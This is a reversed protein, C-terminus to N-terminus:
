LVLPVLRSPQVQYRCVPCQAHLHLWRIGCQWCMIHGCPLASPVVAVSVCLCCNFQLHKNFSPAVDTTTNTVGDIIEDLPAAIGRLKVAITVVLRFLSVLGLLNFLSRSNADSAPYISVYRVGTLFKSLHYSGATLYFWTTHMQHVLPLLLVIMRRLFLCVLRQLTTDDLEPQPQLSLRRHWVPPLVHLLVMLLRRLRGPPRYNGCYQVLGAYEEGLTQSGDLTTMMFYLYTILGDLHRHWRLWWLDGKLYQCGTKLETSLRQLFESDKQASRIIEAHGPRFMAASQKSMYSM